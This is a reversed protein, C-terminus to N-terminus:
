GEHPCEGFMEPDSPRAWSPFQSWDIQNRYPAQYIESPPALGKSLRERAIELLRDPGRGTRPAAAGLVTEAAQMGSALMAWPGWVFTTVLRAWSQGLEAVSAPLQGNMM